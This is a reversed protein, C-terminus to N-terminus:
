CCSFMGGSLHILEVKEVAATKNKAVAGAAALAFWGALWGILKWGGGGSSEVRKEHEDIFYPCFL